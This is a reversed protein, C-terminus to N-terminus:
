RALWQYILTVPEGDKESPQENTQDPSQGFGQDFSSGSGLTSETQPITIDQIRNDINLLRQLDAVQSFLDVAYTVTDANIQHLQIAKVATLEQLYSEIEVVDKMSTIGVFSLLTSLDEGSSAIAYQSVFYQALKDMMQQGALQYDLALGQHSLLPQMIPDQSDKAYLSMQYRVEGAFTDMNAVVFYEADYRQSAMAVSQAFQGRVDTVSVQMLDDLDMLPFLVPIGQSIAYDNMGDENASVMADSVIEYGNESPMSLWFLTLPRQAGWVPLDAKRLIQVLQQHDFIAQLYLQNDQQYYNYQTLLSQPKQVQASVLEHSLVSANGSNKVFVQSLAQKLANTRDTKSRSNVQIDAQDLKKIEVASISTTFVLSAALLIVNLTNKLM